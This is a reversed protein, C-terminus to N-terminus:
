SEEGRGRGDDLSRVVHLYVEPALLFSKFRSERRNKRGLQVEANAFLRGLTLMTSTVDLRITRPTPLSALKLVVVVVVVAAAIVM